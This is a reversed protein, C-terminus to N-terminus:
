GPKNTTVKIKAISGGEAMKALVTEAIEPLLTGNVINDVNRTSVSTIAHRAREYRTETGGLEHQEHCSVYLASLQHRVRIDM